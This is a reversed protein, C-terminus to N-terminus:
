LGNIIELPYLKKSFYGKKAKITIYGGIKARDYKEKPIAMSCHDHKFEIDINYTEPEYMPPYTIVVYAEKYYKNIIQGEETTSIAFHTDLHLFIPLMVLISIVLLISIELSTLDRNKM